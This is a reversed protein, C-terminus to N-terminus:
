PVGAPELEPPYWSTARVAIGGRAHFSACVRLWVPDLAAVLDDRLRTAFHEHFIGEERFTELYLKLSKTEVVRERPRYEIAITAWDPQGTVPCRCTFEGCELAVTQAPDDVPFTELARDARADPNGLKTLGAAPTTVADEM